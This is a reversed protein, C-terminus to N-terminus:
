NNAFIAIKEYGIEFEGNDCVSYNRLAFLAIFSPIDVKRPISPPWYYINAPDPWYWRSTDEYAWSICNYNPTYDSTILFPDKQSNPFEALCIYDSM